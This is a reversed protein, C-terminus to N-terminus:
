RICFGIARRGRRGRERNRGRGDRGRRPLWPSVAKGAGVSAACRFGIDDDAYDPPFGLRNSARPLGFMSCCAGGRVTRREGRSPGKPDRAPSVAYYHPDYRDAVWEWVNGALDRAGFPSAGAAFSGVAVPHGPNGACRGEGQYNGFNARACDPENGWPYRRGDDGRAAREWEAETPLRKGVFRCYAEADSWRVWAIPDSKDGVAGRPKECAGAAVCAGYDGVTVEDRDLDFAALTVKHAPREDLEDGDSGMVFSGAPVRVMNAPLATVVALFPLWRM